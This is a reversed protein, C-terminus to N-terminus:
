MTFREPNVFNDTVWVIGGLRYSALGRWRARSMVDISGTSYAHSGHRPPGDV